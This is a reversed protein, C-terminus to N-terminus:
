NQILRTAKLYPSIQLNSTHNFLGGIARFSQVVKANHRSNAVFDFQNLTNIGNYGCEAGGSLLILIFIM